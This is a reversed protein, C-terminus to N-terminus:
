VFRWGLYRAYKFYIEMVRCENNQWPPHQSHLAITLVLHSVVHPIGSHDYITFQLTEM